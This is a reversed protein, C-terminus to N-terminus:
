NNLIRLTPACTSVTIKTWMDRHSNLISVEFATRFDELYVEVSQVDDDDSVAPSVPSLTSAELLSLFIKVADQTHGTSYLLRGAHSDVDNICTTM